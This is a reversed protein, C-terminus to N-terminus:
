GALYEMLVRRFHRIRVEQYNALTIARKASARLGRQVRPMMDFDQDLIEGFYSLAEVSSWRQDRELWLQSAAPPRSAGERLPLLMMVEFVCENPDHGHPRIRYALPSGFGGFLVLNPFVSYQIVDLVEGTSYAALDVGLDSQLRERMAVEIVDRARSGEPLELGSPCLGFEGAAKLVRKESFGHLQPSATGSVNIM